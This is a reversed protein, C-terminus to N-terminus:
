SRKLDPIHPEKTRMAHQAAIGEVGSVEYGHHARFASRHDEAVRREDHRDLAM